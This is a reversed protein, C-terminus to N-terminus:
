KTLIIETLDYELGKKFSITRLFEIQSCKNDKLYERINRISEGEIEPFIPIHVMKVGKPFKMKM